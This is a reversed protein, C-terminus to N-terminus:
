SRERGPGDVDDHAASRGNGERPAGRRALRPRPRRRVAAGRTPLFNLLKKKSWRQFLRQFHIKPMPLNWFGGSIEMAPIKWNNKKAVWLDM